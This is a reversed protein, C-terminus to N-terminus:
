AYHDKRSTFHYSIDIREDTPNEYRVKGLLKIEAFSNEITIVEINL